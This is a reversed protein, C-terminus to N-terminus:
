LQKLIADALQKADDLTLELVVNGTGPEIEITRGKREVDVYIVPKTTIVRRGSKLRADPTLFRILM